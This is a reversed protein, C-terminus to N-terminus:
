EAALLEAARAVNIRKEAVLQDAIRQVQDDDAGAAM